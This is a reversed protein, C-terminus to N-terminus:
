KTCVVKSNMDGNYLGNLTDVDCNSIYPYDPLMQHMLDDPATSHGLGLAHGFEHRVVAELRDADLKNAKFITIKSKLIQNGDVLSKTYGSYGDPSVDNTLIIEVDGVQDPSGNIDFKQPVYLKTPKLSAQETAGEWGTYYVSSTGKPGTGTQSDDINVTKTSTIASEMSDIMTQPLNATNVVHIHITRGNEINWSVWTDVTDGQLNEIVYNSNYNSMDHATVKILVQNEYYSYGVFGGSIVLALAVISLYHKKQLRFNKEQEDQASKSAFMKEQESEKIKHYGDTLDKKLDANEKTTKELKDSLTTNISDLFKKEQKLENIEHDKGAGYIDSMVDFTKKNFLDQITQLLGKTSSNIIELRKRQEDSISGYKSDLLMDTYTLIPVLPTRLDHNIKTLFDDTTTKRSSVKKLFNKMVGNLQDINEIEQNLEPMPKITNDESEIIKTIGDALLKIQQSEHILHIDDM